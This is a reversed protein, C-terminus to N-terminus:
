AGRDLLRALAPLDTKGSGLTPWDDLLVARRPAAEAGFARRCAALVADRDLGPGSLFCVPVSGRRADAEPLVAAQKVGPLDLLFREIAEPFVNRDAVTFM